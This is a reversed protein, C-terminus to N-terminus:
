RPGETASGCSPSTTRAFWRTPRSSRCRSTALRPSTFATSLIATTSPIRGAALAHVHEIAFPSVGTAHIRDPVFREPPQPLALRGVDHEIAIEWSSAASLSLTRGADELMARTVGLREPAGLMYLRVQTDLLLTV